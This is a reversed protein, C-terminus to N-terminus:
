MNVRNFENHSEIYKSKKSKLIFTNIHEMVFHNHNQNAVCAGPTCKIQFIQFEILICM